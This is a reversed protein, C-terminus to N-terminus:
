LPYTMFDNSRTSKKNVDVQLKDALLSLITNIESLKKNIEEIKLDVKTQLQDIQKGQTLIRDDQYKNDNQLTVLSTIIYATAVIISIVTAISVVTHPGLIIPKDKEM